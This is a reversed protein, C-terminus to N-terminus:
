EGGGCGMSTLAIIIVLTDCVACWCCHCHHQMALQAGSIVGIGVVGHHCCTCLQVWVACCPLLVLVHAVMYRSDIAIVHLPSSTVVMVHHPHQPLSAAVMWSVLSVHLTHVTVLLDCHGCCSSSPMTLINHGGHGGCCLLCSPWLLFWVVPLDCHSCCLSSPMAFVAHNDHCFSPMSLNCYGHCLWSVM